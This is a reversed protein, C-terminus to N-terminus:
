WARLREVGVEFFDGKVEARVDVGVRAEVATEGVATRACNLMPKVSSFIYLPM